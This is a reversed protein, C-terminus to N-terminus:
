IMGEVAKEVVAILDARPIARQARSTSREGMVPGWRAHVGGRGAGGGLGGGPMVGTRDRAVDAARVAMEAPDRSWRRESQIALKGRLHGNDARLLSIVGHLHQIQSHLAANDNDALTM